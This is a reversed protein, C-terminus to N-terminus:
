KKINNGDNVKFNNYGYHMIMLADTRGDMLGGKPGFILKDKMCQPYLQKCIEAVEKKIEKGKSTVKIFKQWVKPQVLTPTIGVCNLITHSIGVNWGFGFNSKASMGFLSHVEELYVAQINYKFKISEVWLMIEQATHKHDKFLLKKLQPIYVCIAGKAGPDIGM